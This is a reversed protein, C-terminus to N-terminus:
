KAAVASPATLEVTAKQGATVTIERTVTQQNIVTKFVITRSEGANLPVTEYIHRDSSTPVTYEDIQIQGSSPLTVVVTATTGSQYPAASARPMLIVGGCGGTCSYVAGHCGGGYCGGHCGGHHGHRRGGGHCGGGSCGHCSASVYGTCGGSCGNCSHRGGCDPAEASGSLAMLVVVGYM